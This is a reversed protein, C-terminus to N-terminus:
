KYILFPRAEVEFAASEKKWQALLREVGGEKEVAKRLQDTGALRDIQPLRWKFEDTHRKYIARLMHVGVEIGNVKDRDTVVVEIMPITEGAFKRATPALTRTTAAFRVGALRKANLESAIAAADMMWSAGIFRFPDETGRGEAVNTGEFMVTGPYLITADMTRLNPSPNIWPIGTAEWWMSRRYGAMPVVTIDADILKKGVLYRLLEGQTFGYRLPVPQYGVFSAFKPDLVNGQFKDARIPNPRDLVIFRKGAKKAAAAAMVMTWQYTYVRAGVDQIDYVLVDLPELMAASPTYTSGYLSHITVGTVSDVASAVSVGAEAAGRLGHEPGFLAVLKVGPARHLLDITSTGKRDRGSTNTILGVRKGTLLHLSDRLLVEVGPMVRGPQQQLAAAPVALAGLMLVVVSFLLPM